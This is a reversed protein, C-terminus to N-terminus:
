AVLQKSNFANNKAKENQNSQLLPTNNWLETMSTVNETVDEIMSTDNSQRNSLRRSILMKPFNYFTIINKYVNPDTKTKDM